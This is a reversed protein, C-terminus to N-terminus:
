IQWPTSQYAEQQGASAFFRTHRKSESTSTFKQRTGTRVARDPESEEALCTEQRGFPRPDTRSFPPHLHPCASSSNIRASFRGFQVPCSHSSPSISVVPIPTTTGRTRREVSPVSGKEDPRKVRPLTPNSGPRGERPPSAGMSGLNHFPDEQVRSLPTRLEDKEFRRANRHESVFQSYMWISVRSAWGLSGSHILMSNALEFLPISPRIPAQMPSSPPLFMCVGHMISM